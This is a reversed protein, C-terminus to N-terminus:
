IEQASYGQERLVRVGEAGDRKALKRGDVETLLPHFHYVPVALGLLSQLMPFGPERMRESYSRRAFAM